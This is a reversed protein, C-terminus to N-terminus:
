CYFLKIKLNLYKGASAKEDEVKEIYTVIPISVYRPQMIKVFTKDDSEDQTVVDEFTNETVQFSTNNGEDGKFGTEKDQFIDTDGKFSTSDVNLHTQDEEFNTQVGIENVKFIIKDGVHLETESFNSDDGELSTDENDEDELFNSIEDDQEYDKDVEVKVRFLWM